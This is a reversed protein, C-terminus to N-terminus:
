IGLMRAVSAMEEVAPTAYPSNAANSMLDSIRQAPKMPNFSVQNDAVMGPPHPAPDFFGLNGPAVFPKPPAQNNQTQLAQAVPTAPQPTGGMPVSRQAQELMQRQGYPEGPAATIPQPGRNNLDTRNAYATQPSGEVKTGKGKRPM